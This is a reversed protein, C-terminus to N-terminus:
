PEPAPLVRADDRGGGGGGGSWTRWPWVLVVGLTLGAHDLGVDFLSPGRSPVFNQLFETAFCHLSLGALLLWRGRRALPLAPITGALLAYCSVHLIKGLSIGFPKQRVLLQPFLYGPLLLAATWAALLTLWFAWRLRPHTASTPNDSM